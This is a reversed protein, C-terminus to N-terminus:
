SLFFEGSFVSQRSDMQFEIVLIAMVVCPKLPGAVDHSEHAIGFFVVFLNLNVVVGSQLM